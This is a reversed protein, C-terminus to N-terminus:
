KRMSFALVMLATAVLWSGGIRVATVAWLKGTANSSALSLYLVMLCTSFWTGTLVQLKASWSGSEVGSDLSLAAASLACFGMVVMPPVPRGIAILLGLCLATGTLVPQWISGGIGAATLALAIVATIAFVLIPGRIRLPDQRGILLAIGIVVLVQAPNVLPHIAGNAFDSWGEIAVHALTEPILSSTTLIDM